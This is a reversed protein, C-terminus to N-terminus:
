SESQIFKEDCDDCRINVNAKGYLKVSCGPCIYRVRTKRPSITEIFFDEAPTELWQSALKEEIFKEDLERSVDEAEDRINDQYVTVIEGTDQCAKAESLSVIHPEFVRPIAKRDAWRLEFGHEGFLSLCAKHFREDEIIYDSMVQGVIKGGPEGTDSPMLGVEIMKLAWEKNHYHGSGPKGFSYQWCHVMEHVLTQMIEILRSQAIYSPNIAIEHCRRGGREAWREPAFYGMVGKQRQVTFIIEPLQDSFLAKNFYRYASDLSNYLEESPRM